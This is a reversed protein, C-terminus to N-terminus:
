VVVEGMPSDGDAKPDEDNKRWPVGIVVGLNDRNRRETVLKRRVTITFWM